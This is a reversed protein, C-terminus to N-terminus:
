LEFFESSCIKLPRLYLRAKRIKARQSVFSPPQHPLPTAVWMLKPFDCAPRQAAVSHSHRGTHTVLRRHMEKANNNQLKGKGDRWQWEGECGDNEVVMTKLM